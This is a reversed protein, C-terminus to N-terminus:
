KLVEATNNKLDKINLKYLEPHFFFRVIIENQEDIFFNELVGKIFNPKIIYQTEGELNLVLIEDNGMLLYIRKLADNYIM